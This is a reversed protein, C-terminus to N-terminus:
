NNESKRKKLDELKQRRKEANAKTISDKKMKNKQIRELLKKRKEARLEAQTKVKNSEEKVKEEVKTKDEPKAKPIEPGKKTQNKEAGKNKLAERKAKAEAIRKARKEENAKIAAARKADRDEKQKRIREQLREKNTKREAAKSALEKKKKEQALERDSKKKENEIKKRGKVIKQLVLESVDYKPNSYLMVMDNSSKDFIIDYKKSKVIEQVANFILDQIPKVLQKRLMFLDGSTGFLDEQKQKFAEEQFAIDEERELILDPTLLAKENSLTLRMGDIKNKLQNLSSNWQSIKADLKSQASKYAPVNELIYERDIYGIKQPKQALIVQTLLAILLISINKIM